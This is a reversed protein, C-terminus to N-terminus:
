CILALIRTTGVRTTAMAGRKPDTGAHAPCLYPVGARAIGCRHNALNADPPTGNAAPTPPATYFPRKRKRIVGAHCHIAAERPRKTPTPSNGDRASHYLSYGCLRM